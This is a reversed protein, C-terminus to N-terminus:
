LPGSWRESHVRARLVEELVGRSRLVDAYFQPSNSPSMALGVGLQSAVSAFGGLMSQQERAAAVFSTVTTFKSRVLFTSAGVLLAGAVPLAVVLRWRAIISELLNWGEDRQADAAPALGPRPPIYSSTM